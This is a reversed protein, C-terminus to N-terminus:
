ASGDKPEVIADRKMKAFINRPVLVAVSYGLSGAWPLTYIVQNFCNKIAAISRIKPTFSQCDVGWFSNFVSAFSVGGSNALVSHPQMKLIWGLLGYLLWGSFLIWVWSQPNNLASEADETAGQKMFLLFHRILAFPFLGAILGALFSFYLFHTQPLNPSVQMGGRIGLNFLANMVREVIAWAVLFAIAFILLKGIWRWM